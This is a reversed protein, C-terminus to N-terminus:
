LECEPNDCEITCMIEDCDTGFYERNERHKKVTLKTGCGICRGKVSTYEELEAYLKNIYRRPDNEIEIILDNIIQISEEETYNETIMQLLEYPTM